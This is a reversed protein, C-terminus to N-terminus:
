GSKSGLCTAHLECEHLFWLPIAECFLSINCRSRLSYVCRKLIDCEFEKAGVVLKHFHLHEAQQHDKWSKAQSRNEWCQKKVLFAIIHLSTGKKRYRCTHVYTYDGSEVDCNTKVLKGCGKSLSVDPPHQTSLWPWFKLKLPGLFIQVSGGVRGENVKM